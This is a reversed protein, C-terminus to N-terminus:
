HPWKHLGAVWEIRGGTARDFMRPDRLLATASMAADCGTYRMMADADSRSGCTAANCEHGCRVPARMARTATNCLRHLADDADSESRGHTHVPHMRNHTPAHTPVHM